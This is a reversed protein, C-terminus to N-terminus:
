PLLFQSTEYKFFECLDCQRSQCSSFFQSFLHGDEKLTKHKLDAVVPEQKFFNLKNKKIPKYFAAKDHSELAKMLAQFREIGSEYHTNIQEHVIPNAIDKTDFTLLDNSEEQFPNGM